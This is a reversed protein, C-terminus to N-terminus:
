GSMVVLKQFQQRWMRVTAPNRPYGVLLFMAIKLVWSTCTAANPWYDSLRGRVLM